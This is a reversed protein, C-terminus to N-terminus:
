RKAWRPMGRIKGISKDAVFATVFRATYTRDLKQHVDIVVVFEEYVVAVRRDRDVRRLQKDWGCYLNAKPNTLTARIWDVRELRARSLTDKVGDRRTSEFM